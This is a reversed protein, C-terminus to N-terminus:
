GVVGNDHLRGIAGSDLGLFDSLVEVTDRGITPAPRAPGRDEGLIRAPAGPAPYTAGGPHTLSSFIPNASFLRPEAEIAEHLTHYKAWTVGAKDFQQELADAGFQSFGQEVLPDLRDRHTYRAGEDNGFDVGLERELAAVPASIGLGAVMGSWQRPTIAVVMFRTGDRSVFDRGFAGFLNNGSRPRDEGSLTVEALNGLNALSAAAIDSLSVQIERGRGTQTRNREAALLAFAAYAGTMLDWAPLVHNVPVNDHAPGTMYPLGVAANVTYDMAPKGDSWGMIRLTVHDERLQHLTEHSLFGNAPFNTVFLGDGGTALRQALERGEAQRFDLAISLKGKNLGEWYLSEDNPGIPWRRADPGGGIQDFRIVRAGMQALHLACSPGAVFSAGEVVTLGDLLNYM